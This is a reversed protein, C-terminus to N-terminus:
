DNDYFDDQEDSDDCSLSSLTKDIDKEDVLEMKGKLALFTIRMVIFSIVTCALSIIALLLSLFDFAFFLGVVKIITVIALVFFQWEYSAWTHKDWGSKPAQKQPFTRKLKYRTLSCVFTYLILLLAFFVLIVYTQLLALQNISELYSNLAQPVFFEPIAFLVLVLSCLIVRLTQTKTLKQADGTFVFVKQNNKEKKM